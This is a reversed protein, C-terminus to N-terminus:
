AGTRAHGARWELGGCVALAAGFPLWSYLARLALVAAIIESTSATGGLLHGLSGELVGLNGPVHLLAGAVSAVLLAGPMLRVLAAAMFLWRAASLAIQVFALPLAPLLLSGHGRM